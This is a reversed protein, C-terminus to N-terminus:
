IKNVLIFILHYILDDFSKQIFLLNESILSQVNKLLIWEYM